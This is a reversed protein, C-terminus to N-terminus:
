LYGARKEGANTRAAMSVKVLGPSRTSSGWTPPPVVSTSARALPRSATPTSILESASNTAFTLHVTKESASSSVSSAHAVSRGFLMSM